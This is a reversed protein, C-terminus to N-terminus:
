SAWAPLTIPEILDGYAPWSGSETCGRWARYASAVLERAKDIAERDLMYVGVAFPPEKEVAIFVWAPPDDGFVARAGNFYHAAQVHYRHQAIERRFGAPSADRTTKLDVLIGDSRLWDARAKCPTSTEEDTWLMSVEAAGADLLTRAGPHSRVADAIRSVTDFDDGSLILKGAHLGEFAAAAAKGASTRRDVRPAGVVELEFRAPELVALHTATGIDQSQTSENDAAARVRYHAPSRLIAKVDSSGIAPLAHYKDAPLDYLVRAGTSEPQLVASM